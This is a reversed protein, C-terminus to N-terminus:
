KFFAGYERVIYNDPEENYLYCLYFKLYQYSIVTYYFSVQASQSLDYLWNFTNIPYQDMKKMYETYKKLSELVKEPPFLLFASMIDAMLEDRNKAFLPDICNQGYAKKKEAPQNLAQNMIYHSLEHALIYRKTFESDDNQLNIAYGGTSKRRLYGNVKEVRFGRDVNLNTEYIGIDLSKVIGRIDIPFPINETEYFLEHLKRALERAYVCDMEGLNQNGCVMKGLEETNWLKEVGNLM